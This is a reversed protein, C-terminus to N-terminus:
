FTWCTWTYQKQSPTVSVFTNPSSNVSTVMVDSVTDYHVRTYNSTHLCNYPAWKIYSPAQFLIDVSNDQQFKNVISRRRFPFMHEDFQAQSTSWLTQRESIFFTWTNTNPEFGLYIAAQARATHKCKERREANLYVWARCCFARFRSVDKLEGYICSYPTQGLQQKYTFNCANKGTLAVKFWFRGGLGSEAMVTCAFRMISNIAEEALGNQWQEYALSFHNQKGTSQIFVMIKLRNTQEQM